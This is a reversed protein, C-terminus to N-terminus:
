EGKKQLLQLILDLKQGQESQTREITNIAQEVTDFRERMDGLDLEIRDVKANIEQLGVRHYRALNLLLKESEVIGDRDQELNSLRQEIKTVRQEIPQNM